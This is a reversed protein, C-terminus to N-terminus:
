SLLEASPALHNRGEWVRLRPPEDCRILLEEFSEATDWGGFMQINQGSSGGTYGTIPSVMSAACYQTQAHALPSFLLVLLAAVRNTCRM